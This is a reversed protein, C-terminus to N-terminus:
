TNAASSEPVYVTVTDSEPNLVNTWESIRNCAPPVGSSRATSSTPVSESVTLTLAALSSTDVVAVVTLEVTLVSTILLRGTTVLFAIFKTVNRGPTSVGPVPRAEVILPRGCLVILTVISPMVVLLKNCDPSPKKEIIVGRRSATCSTVTEPAPAPAWDAPPPATCILNTVREPVFWNSVLM